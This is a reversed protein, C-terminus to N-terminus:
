KKEYFRKEGNNRRTTTANNVVSLVSFYLSFKLIIIYIKVLSIIKARTPFHPHLLKYFRNIPM